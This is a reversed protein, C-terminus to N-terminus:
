RLAMLSVVAWGGREIDLSATRAVGRASIQVAHKGAAVRLRAVAVRAPLTEWSRTDPTDLVTLTAQTGLSLLTGVLNDKGAAAGVLTGAAYRAVLRTIASVIVRGEIKKWERRVQSTVDVAEELAVSRGDLVCSPLDYGGREPGLTPFNIWTVLGQAALRNAAAVDGPSLAGSFFTLALGIPIREAIKHPVRGYGVVVVVEGEGTEELPAPTPGADRGLQELRPSRYHGQELLTRVPGRLTRFGAFELAEDYWRLAEDVQDSKEFAFGAMLGGLGLVANDNERLEDGVYRQMVALRRAEIRAGNLDRLELYNLM